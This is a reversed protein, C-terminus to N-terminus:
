PLANAAAPYIEPRWQVIANAATASIVIGLRLKQNTVVVPPVTSTGLGATGNSLYVVDGAVPVADLQVALRGNIAVLGRAGALPSNLLVGIVGSANAVNDAQALGIDGALTTVKVISRAALTGATTNVGSFVTPAVQATLAPAIGFLHNGIPDYYDTGTNAGSSLPVASCLEGGSMRIDAVTAVITNNTNWRVDSNRGLTMDLVVDSTVGTLASVAGSLRAGIVGIIPGGAAVVNM